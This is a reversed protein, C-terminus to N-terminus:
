SPSQLYSLIYVSILVVYDYIKYKMGREIILLYYLVCSWSCQNILNGMCVYM